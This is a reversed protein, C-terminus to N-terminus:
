RMITHNTRLITSYNVRLTGRERLIEQVDTVIGMPVNKHVKFNIITKEPDISLDFFHSKFEFTSLSEGNLKITESDALELTINETQNDGEMGTPECGFTIGLILFFPIIAASKLYSRYTSNNQTMMRFRRKTIKFHLSTSLYGTPKAGRTRLLLYQYEAIDAGGSLVKDDAIFEHNLQIATKYFFLIPNFWFICKLIEIIFIDLSHNQRAHTLEHILVEEDIKGNEYQEENLFITKWFTHPVVEEDLLVIKHGKLFTAPNKMTKLRMRYLHRMMRIFLFLTVISYLCLLLPYIWKVNSTTKEYNEPSNAPIELILQPTPLEPNSGVNLLSDAVGIPIFPVTFSFLLGILLYFRNIQYIKEKALSAYYFLLVLGLCITSYILYSIM